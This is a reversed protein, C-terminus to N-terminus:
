LHIFYLFPSKPCGTNKFKFNSKFKWFFVHAQQSLHTMILMVLFFNLNRPFCTNRAKCLKVNCCFFIAFLFIYFNKYFAYPLYQCHIMGKGMPVNIKVLWNECHYIVFLNHSKSYIQVQKWCLSIKMKKWREPNNERFSDSM